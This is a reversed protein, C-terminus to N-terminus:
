RRIHGQNNKISQAFAEGIVRLNLVEGREVLEVTMKRKKQRAM